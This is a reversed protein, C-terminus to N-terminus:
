ARQRAPVTSTAIHRTIQRFIIASAKREAATMNKRYVDFIIAAARAFCHNIHWFGYAVGAVPVRSWIVTDVAGSLQPKRLIM